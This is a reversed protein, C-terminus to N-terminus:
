NNIINLLSVRTNILHRTLSELREKLDQVNLELKKLQNQINDSKSTKYSVISSLEADVKQFETIDTEECAVKKPQMLKSIISLKSSARPGSILSLLSEIVKFTVAEVERLMSITAKTEHEDSIPSSKQSKIGKLNKLAKQITKKLAKRSTLFKTVESTLEIDDTRRRRFISQLGQVSEKTQLLADKAISCIDLLRLSGNLLEDVSQKLQRALSLQLLKDVCDHLEQLSYIQNIISSSSMSTFESAILRSLHQDVECTIPHHRSPLSNSRTHYSAAM